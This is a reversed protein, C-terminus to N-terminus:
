NEISVLGYSPSFIISKICEKKYFNLRFSNEPECRQFKLINKFYHLALNKILKQKQAVCAQLCAQKLPPLNTTYSAGPAFDSLM